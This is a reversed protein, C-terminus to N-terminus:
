TTAADIKAQNPDVDRSVEDALKRGRAPRGGLAEGPM